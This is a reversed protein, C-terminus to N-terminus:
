EEEGRLAEIREKMQRLLKDFDPQMIIRKITYVSLGTAKSIARLTNGTAIMFATQGIQDATLQIAPRTM